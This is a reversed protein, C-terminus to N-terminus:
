IRLRKLHCVLLKGDEDHLHMGNGECYRFMNCDACEGQRAWERNRYNHFRNEWVDWFDDHYINGQYFKSRISTCASISGDILISAVSIGANCIYLHDRVEGEYDGLFGECGYSAHMKGEKRTAKIFDMMARFDPNSLQFEPYQKARGLPFISFLRWNRVGAEYLMDKMAPLYSINRGNVCTVVDWALNKTRALLRIARMANQFSQDNGRMWNHDDQMGDLSVAVSKLGSALLRKLREETLLMGNSVMGWPYERKYLEAGVAEIDNRMLPEGGSFIIMLKHPDVHPTISDITRLFDAAPMDPTEAVVKCDSGCHKCKLNCRLTCEWFLQHLPHLKKKNERVQRDLELIIRKKINMMPLNNKVRIVTFAEHIKRSYKIVFVDFVIASPLKM